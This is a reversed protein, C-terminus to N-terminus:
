YSSCFSIWTLVACPSLAMLMTTDNWMRAAALLIHDLHGVVGPTIDGGHACASCAALAPRRNNKCETKKCESYTRGHYM